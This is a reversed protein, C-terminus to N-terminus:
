RCHENCCFSGLFTLYPEKLIKQKISFLNKEYVIAQNHNESGRSWNMKM